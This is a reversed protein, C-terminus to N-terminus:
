GWLTREEELRKEAMDYYEQNTEFGVYRRNLNKCAICENGSGVFPILVIDDENSSHKLINEILPISKPTIHGNKKAIEYNWVSHHTKQNNFTYRINNNIIRANEYQDKIDMWKKTLLKSDINQLVKQMVKYQHEPILSPQKIGIWHPMLGGGKMKLDM